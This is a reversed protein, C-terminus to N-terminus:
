LIKVLEGEDDRLECVPPVEPQSYTDIFYEGDPSLSVSHDGKEPTLLRLNKGDFDVRYFYRYYPNVGEEKGSGTFYVQRNEQDVKLVQRVVFDGTTIENKM